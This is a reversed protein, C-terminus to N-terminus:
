APLRRYFPRPMTYLAEADDFRVGSLRELLALV